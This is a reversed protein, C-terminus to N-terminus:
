KPHWTDRCAGLGAPVWRCLHSPLAHATSYMSAGLHPLHPYASLTPSGHQALQPESCRTQPCHQLATREPESPEAHLPPFLSHRKWAPTKAGSRAMRCTRSRPCVCQDLTTGGSSSTGGGCSSTGDGFSSTGGGFSFGGGFTTGGGFSFSTILVTILSTTITLSTGATFSTIWGTGSTFCGGTTLFTIVSSM